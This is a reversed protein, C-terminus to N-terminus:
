ITELVSDVHGAVKVNTWKKKLVGDESILFTSRVIGMYTRGYNKKEQWVGYQETVFPEEDSLLTVKLQYKDCFSKHKKVTDRSVGLVVTNKNSFETMKESFEIAERTCGPTDDKPYFYLVVSKGCFDTLQHEVGDQDLLKFNPAVDGEVLM